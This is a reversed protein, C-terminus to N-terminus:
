RKGFSAQPAPQHQPPRLTDGCAQMALRVADLPKLSPTSSLLDAAYHSIWAASPRAPPADHLTMAIELSSQHDQVVPPPLTL